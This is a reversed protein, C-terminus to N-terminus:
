RGDKSAQSHTADALKVAAAHFSPDTYGPAQRAAHTGSGVTERRLAITNEMGANDLAADPTFALRPDVLAAYSRAATQATLDLRESLMAICLNRNASELVWRLSLIYGALYRELTARNANAWPRRVFAGSAQYPGFLDATNGLSVLGMDEAKFSYPPNLVAAAADHSEAMAKLRLEGRGVADIAYDCGAVLGHNALIKIAQLAYATDPADVVLRKGRLDAITTIGPQVFLENMGSDGGTVIVVDQGDDDVMSLANDVALHVIDTAGTALSDRQARSNDTFHVSAEIGFRAFIGREIGVFLPLSKATPYACIKVEVM